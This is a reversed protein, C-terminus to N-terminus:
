PWRHLKAKLRMTCYQFHGGDLEDTTIYRGPSIAV